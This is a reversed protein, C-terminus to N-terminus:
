AIAAYKPISVAYRGVIMTGLFNELKLTKGKKSSIHPSDKDLYRDVYKPRLEFTVKKFLYEREMKDLNLRELKLM